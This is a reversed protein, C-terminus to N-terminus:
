EAMLCILNELTWRTTFGISNACFKTGSRTQYRGDILRAKVVTRRSKSRVVAEISRTIGHFPYAILGIGATYVFASDTVEFLFWLSSVYRLASQRGIRNYRQCVRKSCRFGRGGEGMLRSRSSVLSAVRQVDVITQGDM